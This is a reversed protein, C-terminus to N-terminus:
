RECLADPEVGHGPGTPEITPSREVPVVDEDLLLNGDLDVYSFAGTGAVVHAAAHIGIASELMCGIMLESGM